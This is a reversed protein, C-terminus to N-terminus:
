GRMVGESSSGSRSLAPPVAGQNWRTGESHCQVSGFALLAGEARTRSELFLVPSLSRGGEREVCQNARNEEQLGSNEQESDDYVFGSREFFDNGGNDRDRM